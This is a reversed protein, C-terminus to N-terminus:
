FTLHFPGENLPLSAAVNLQLPQKMSGGKGYVVILPRPGQSTVQFIISKDNFEVDLQSGLFHFQNPNRHSPVDLGLPMGNEEQLLLSLRAQRYKIYTTQEPLVPRFEVVNNRIRVGGWGAWLGQLFGGAGPLARPSILQLCLIPTRSPRLGTIFHPCGGNITEQWANFPLNLNRRRASHYALHVDAVFFSNM